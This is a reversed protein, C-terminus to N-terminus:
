DWNKLKPWIQQLVWGRPQACIWIAGHELAYSVGFNGARVVQDFYKELDARNGGLVIMSNGTYQRPGWLFENQHGCIAKPLSYQAGFFDIAGAEGYNQALIATTSRLDSPVKDYARAM